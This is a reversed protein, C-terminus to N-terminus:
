YNINWSLRNTGDELTLCDLQLHSQYATRFRWYSVVLLRQMVTWSQQVTRGKFIPCVPQGFVNTVVLWCQVIDWFLSSRLHTYHKLLNVYSLLRPQHPRFCFMSSTQKLDTTHFAHLFLNLTIKNNSANSVLYLYKCTESLFFSEMRDELSKDLVSHVTAYGCEARTINNLSQLIDM